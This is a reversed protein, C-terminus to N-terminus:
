FIAVLLPRRKKNGWFFKLNPFALIKVFRKQLFIMSKWIVRCRLLRAQFFMRSFRIGDAKESLAVVM